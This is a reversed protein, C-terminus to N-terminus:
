IPLLIKFECFKGSSTKINLKGGATDVHKKVINMGIGQGAVQDVSQSTSFGPHFILKVADSGSLNKVQE